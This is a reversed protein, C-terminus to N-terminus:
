QGRRQRWNRSVRKMVDTGRWLTIIFAVAIAAIGLMAGFFM